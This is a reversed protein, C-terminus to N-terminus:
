VVLTNDQIRFLTEVTLGSLFMKATSSLHSIATTKVTDGERLIRIELDGADHKTYTVEYVLTQDPIEYSSVVPAFLATFIMVLILQSVSLSRLKKHRDTM